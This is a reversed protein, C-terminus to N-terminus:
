EIEDPNRGSTEAFRRRLRCINADTRARREEQSLESHPRQDVMGQMPMMPPPPPYHPIPPQPAPATVVPPPRDADVGREPDRRRPKQALEGQHRSIRAADMRWPEESAVDRQVRNWMENAAEATMPKGRGGRKGGLVLEDAIQQFTLRRQELLPYLREFKARLWVYAESRGAHTERAKALLRTLTRDAMHGKGGANRTCPLTPCESALSLGVSPYGDPTLGAHVRHWGPVPGTCFLTYVM